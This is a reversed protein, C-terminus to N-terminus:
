RACRRSAALRRIYKTLVQDITPLAPKAATATEPAPAPAPLPPVDEPIAHGKHCTYCGVVQRGGFNARNIETMMQWMRRAVTKMAVDDKDFQQEIHCFTCDVDLSAKIMHMGRPDGRERPVGKMVQINKYAQEAPRM